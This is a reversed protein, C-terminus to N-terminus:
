RPAQADTTPIRRMIGPILLKLGCKGKKVDDGFDITARGIGEFIPKVWERADKDGAVICLLSKSVAAPPQGFVPASLYTAGAAKAKEALKVKM